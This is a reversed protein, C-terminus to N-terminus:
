DKRKGLIKLLDLFLNIFDLYLLLAGSIAQKQGKEPNINSLRKKIRQTDYAILAVFILVGAYALIMDLNQSKWVFLNGFTALVLGLLAMFAINGITTLDAKTIYGYLSMPLFMASALIFIESISSIQYVYFIISLTSGEVIAFIFFLFAIILLPLKPVIGNILLILVIEVGLIIWFNTMNAFIVSTLNPISAIVWSAAASVILGVSMWAYVSTFNVRRSLAKTVM